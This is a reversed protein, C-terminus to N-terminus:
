GSSQLRTLSRERSPRIRFSTPFFCRAQPATAPIATKPRPRASKQRPPMSFARVPGSRVGISEALNSGMEKLLADTKGM